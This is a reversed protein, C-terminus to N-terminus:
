PASAMAPTTLMMKRLSKSPRVRFPSVPMEPSLSALCCRAESVKPLPLRSVSLNLTTRLASYLLDSMSIFLSRAPRLHIPM